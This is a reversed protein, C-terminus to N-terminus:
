TSYRCGRTWPRSPIKSCWRCTAACRGGNRANVPAAVDAGLVEISGSQPPALELIEHLTTSKGSGSEGVIGLTHGQPLDFSVGDVARVEGVQRRFM